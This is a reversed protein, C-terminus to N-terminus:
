GSVRQRKNETALLTDPVVIAVIRVFVLSHWEFLLDVLGGHKVDAAM